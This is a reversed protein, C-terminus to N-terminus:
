CMNECIQDIYVPTCSGNNTAVLTSRESQICIARPAKCRYSFVDGAKVWLRLWSQMCHTEKVWVRLWMNGFAGVVVLLGVTVRIGVVVFEAVQGRTCGDGRACGGARHFDAGLQRGHDRRFACAGLQLRPRNAHM